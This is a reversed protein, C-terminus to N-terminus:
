CALVTGGLLLLPSILGGGRLHQCATAQLASRIGSLSLSFLASGPLTWSLYSVVSLREKCNQLWGASANECPKLSTM